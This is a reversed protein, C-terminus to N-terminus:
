RCCACFVCCLMSPPRTLVCCVMAAATVDRRWLAEGGAKLRLLILLCAICCCFPRCQLIKRCSILFIPEVYALFFSPKWQDIWIWGNASRLPEYEYRLRNGIGGHGNGDGWAGYQSGMMLLTGTKTGRGRGQFYSMIVAISHPFPFCDHYLGVTSQTSGAVFLRPSHFECPVHKVM